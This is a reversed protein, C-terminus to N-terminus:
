MTQYVLGRWDQRCLPCTNNMDLWKQICKSHYEHGCPLQRICQRNKFPCMCIVCATQTSSTPNIPPTITHRNQPSIRGSRRITPVEDCSTSTNPAKYRYSFFQRVDFQNFRNPDSLKEALDLLAEYNERERYTRWHANRGISNARCRQQILYNEDSSCTSSTESSTESYTPSINGNRVCDNKNNATLTTTTNISNENRRMLMSNMQSTTPVINRLIAQEDDDYATLTPSLSRVVDIPIERRYPFAPTQLQQQSHPLRPYHNPASNTRYYSIPHKIWNTTQDVSFLSSNFNSLPIQSPFYSPPMDHTMPYRGRNQRALEDHIYSNLSDMQQQEQQKQHMSKHKIIPPQNEVENLKEYRTRKSLLHNTLQQQRQNFYDDHLVLQEDNDNEITTQNYTRKRTSKQQSLLQRTLFLDDNDAVIQRHDQIPILMISPSPMDLLLRHKGVSSPTSSLQNSPITMVPKHHQFTENECGSNQVDNTSQSLLTISENLNNRRLSRNSQKTRQQEM